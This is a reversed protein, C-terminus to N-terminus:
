NQSGSENAPIESEELDKVSGKKSFDGSINIRSRVLDRATRLAESVEEETMGLHKQQMVLDNLNVRGRIKPDASDLLGNVSFEPHALAIGFLRVSLKIDRIMDFCYTYNSETVLAELALPNDKAEETIFLARNHFKSASHLIEEPVQQEDLIPSSLDLDGNELGILIQDSPEVDTEKTKIGAPSRLIPLVEAFREKWWSDYKRRWSGIRKELTASQGTPFRYLFQGSELNPTEIREVAM